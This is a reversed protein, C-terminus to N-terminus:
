PRCVTGAPKPVFGCAGGRCIAAGECTGPTPDPCAVGGAGACGGCNAPNLGTNTCATGCRTQGAPCPCVGGPPPVLGTTRCLCRRGAGLVQEPPCAAAAAGAGLMGALAAGFGGLFRRRSSAGALGRALDDFRKGDM